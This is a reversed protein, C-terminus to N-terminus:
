QSKECRKMPLKLEIPQTLPEGSYRIETSLVNLYDSKEADLLKLWEACGGGRDISSQGLIKGKASAIIKLTFFGDESLSAGESKFPPGDPEFRVSGRAPTGDSFVLRGKIETVPMLEPVQILLGEIVNSGVEVIRSEKRDFTGPFYVPASIPVESTMLRDSLIGLYYKGPKIATFEFEGDSNTTPITWFDSLDINRSLRMPARSIPQGSPGLVRGRLGGSPEFFLDMAIHRREGLLIPIQIIGGNVYPKGIDPHIGTSYEVRPDNLKWGSQVPINLRYEGPPLDYTEFYGTRDTKLELTKKEGIVKLKVDALNLGPHHGAHFIGSLRTKERLEDVKDLYSVDRNSDVPASGSCHSADYLAENSALKGRTYRNPYETTPAPMFLLFRSNIQEKSFLGVCDSGSGQWLLITEGSKIEGKYVKEIIWRTSYISDSSAFHGKIEVLRATTVVQSNELRENVPRPPACSCAQATESFIMSGILGFTLFALHRKLSRM